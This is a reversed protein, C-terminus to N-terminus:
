HAMVAGCCKKYKKGSGCPCPQNRGIKANPLVTVPAPPPGVGARRVKLWYDYVFQIAAPLRILASDLFPEPDEITNGESDTEGILDVTRSLAVIDFYAIDVDGVKADDSRPWGGGLEVGQLYGNCWPEASQPYGWPIFVKKSDLESIVQNSLRNLLVMIKNAEAIGPFESDGLVVEQWTSPMVTELGSLVATLLGHTEAFPMCGRAELFAKLKKTEGKTLPKQLNGLM